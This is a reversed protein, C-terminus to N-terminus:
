DRSGMGELVELDRMAVESVPCSPLLPPTSDPIKEHKVVNSGGFGPALYYLYLLLLSSGFVAFCVTRPQPVFLKDNKDKSFHTEPSSILTYEYYDSNNSM